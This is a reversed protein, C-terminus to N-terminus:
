KELKSGLNRLYTLSEGFIRTTPQIYIQNQKAPVEGLDAM